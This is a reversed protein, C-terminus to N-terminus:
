DAPIISWPPFISGGYQRKEYSDLSVARFASQCNFSTTRRAMPISHPHCKWLLSPATVNGQSLLSDFWQQPRGPVGRQSQNLASLLLDKGSFSNQKTFKATSLSWALCGSKEETAEGYPEECLSVRLAKFYEGLGLLPSFHLESM